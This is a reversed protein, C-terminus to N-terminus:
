KESIGYILLLLCELLLLYCRSLTGKSTNIVLSLNGFDAEIAYISLFM